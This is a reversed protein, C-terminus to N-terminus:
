IGSVGMLQTHCSWGDGFTALIAEPQSNGIQNGSTQVWELSVHPFRCEGEGGSASDGGPKSQPRDRHIEASEPPQDQFRDKTRNKRLGGLETAGAPTQPLNRFAEQLSCLPSLQLGPSSDPSIAQLPPM